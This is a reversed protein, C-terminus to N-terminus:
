GGPPGAAGGGQAGIPYPSAQGRVRAVRGQARGAPRHHDCRAGVGGGRVAQAAAGIGRGDAGELVRRMCAASEPGFRRDLGQPTIPAGVAAGTGCLESLTAAPDAMWGFVLARVWTSGTQKRHRRIFGASQAAQDEVETLVEQLARSVQAVTTM